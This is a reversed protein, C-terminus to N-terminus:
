SRLYFLSIIGAIATGILVAPALYKSTWKPNRGRLEPFRSRRVRALEKGALTDQYTLIFSQTISDQLNVIMELKREFQHRGLGRFIVSPPEISFHYRAEPTLVITSDLHATVFGSLTDIDQRHEKWFKMVLDDFLLENTRQANSKNVLLTSLLITVILAYFWNLKLRNSAHDGHLHHSRTLWPFFRGFNITNAL